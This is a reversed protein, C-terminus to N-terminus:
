AVPKAADPSFPFPVDGSQVVQFTLGGAELRQGAALADQVRDLRLMALAKGGSATSGIRGVPKGDAVAEIGEEAAFGDDFSVPVIRTRVTGRHQMRSVVEQGVFCGKDFDVGGLRDLNVEHPFADGYIFDRGGEPVGLAIRYADYAAMDGSLAEAESREMIVRDGLRPDRPDAYLVGIGNPAREGDFFAVVCLTSSLDEVSVKARLKYFGLRKALDAALPRAVDLYLAGGQEGDAEAVIFDFLIKGQPTLLAAYRAKDDAVASMDSTVLGDLFSRADEGSVRVVGRETLAASAM